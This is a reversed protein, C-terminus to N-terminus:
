QPLCIVHRKTLFHKALLCKAVAELFISATQVFQSAAVATSLNCTKQDFVAKGISM